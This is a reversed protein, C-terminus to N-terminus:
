VEQTSDDDDEGKAKGSWESLLSVGGRSVGLLLRRDEVEVLHLSGEQGLPLSDILKMHRPRITNHRRLLLRAAAYLVALFVAAKVLAQYEM